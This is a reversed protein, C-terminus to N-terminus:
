KILLNMLQGFILLMGIEIWGECQFAFTNIPCIFNDIVHVQLVYQKYYM